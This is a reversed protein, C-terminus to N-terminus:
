AMATLDQHFVPELSELANSTGSVAGGTLNGKYNGNRDTSWATYQGTGANKWAVDFGGATQIAGIPTWKGFEGVTVTTGKYKLTPDSGSSGDLDYHHNAVETLRTSGDTQILKQTPGLVGDRNLDQHFVPELSELANSTGSVAGGTLNGKYNGNRDTSWATYQGTGANKWAVDFGGATQIAGIPTWKGFEGVTVTTGKYKLTPDSGSSGDLDYHHNAVETLRTSGDTQILKQTPGLVGDRNLDQHFVPELSKWHTARERYPM